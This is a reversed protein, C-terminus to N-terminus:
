PPMCRGGDDNEGISKTRTSSTSAPSSSTRAVAYSKNLDTTSGRGAILLNTSTLHSNKAIQDKQLNMPSRMELTPRLSPQSAVKAGMPTRSMNPTHASAM